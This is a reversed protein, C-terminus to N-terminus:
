GGDSVHVRYGPNLRQMRLTKGTLDFRRGGTFVGATGELIAIGGSDSDNPPPDAFMLGRLAMRALEREGSRSHLHAETRWGERGAGCVSEPPAACAAAALILSCYAAFIRERM